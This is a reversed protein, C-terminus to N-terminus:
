VSSTNQVHEIMRYGCHVLFSTCHVVDARVALLERERDIFYDYRQEVLLVGTLDLDDEPVLHLRPM